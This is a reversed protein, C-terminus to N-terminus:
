QFSDLYAILKWFETSNQGVYLSISSVEKVDLLTGGQLNIASSPSLKQILSGDPVTAM